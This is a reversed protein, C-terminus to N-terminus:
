RLEMFRRLHRGYEFHYFGTAGSPCFIWNRHWDEKVKETLREQDEKLEVPHVMERRKIVWADDAGARRDLIISAEIDKGCGLATL